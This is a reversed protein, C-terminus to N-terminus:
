DPTHADAARKRGTIMSWVLNERHRYSEVLAATAHALAVAILANSLVEHVQELWKDGWFADLGMMWGTLGLGLLLLMLTLMVVAGLPSHGLRRQDRGSLVQRIHRVVRNSSPVFDAFRAHRTGIFGWIIRVVVAGAVVYGVVRHWYHGHELVWLNLICGTVVTWHFLRVLPDWVRVSAASRPDAAESVQRDAM